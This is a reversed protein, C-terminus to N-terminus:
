NGKNKNSNPNKALKNLADHAAQQEARKKSSGSGFGLRMNEVIAVVSFIPANSPGSTSILQYSVTKRTDTQILEQLTTKYDNIDDYNTDDVHLYVTKNLIYDVYEKGLDLYIAGVFSEFVNALVSPRERGGNKEEGIGFYIQEGLNLLRAFRALSEERVLKSRLLTLEGEPMKPYKKFLFESVFLQLVADGMFELREYDKSKEYSENVYSAHTFAEKYLSLNSFPIKLKELFTILRM